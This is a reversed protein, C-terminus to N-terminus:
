IKLGKFSWLIERAITFWISRQGRVYNMTAAEQEAIKGNRSAKSDIQHTDIVRGTKTRWKYLKHVLSFESIQFFRHCCATNPEITEIYIQALKDPDNDKFM